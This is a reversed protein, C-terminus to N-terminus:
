GALIGQISMSGFGQITLTDATSSCVALCKDLDIADPLALAYNSAAACAITWKAATGNAPPVTAEFIMVFSAAGGNYGVIGVLKCSGAAITFSQSAGLFATSGVSTTPYRM